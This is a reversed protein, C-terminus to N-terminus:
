GEGLDSKLLQAKLVASGKTAVIEGPLV